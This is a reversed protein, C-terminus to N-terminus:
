TFFHRYFYRQDCIGLSAFPPEGARRRLFNARTIVEWFVTLDVGRQALGVRRIYIGRWVYTSEIRERPFFTSSVRATWRTPRRARGAPMRSTGGPRLRAPLISRSRYC